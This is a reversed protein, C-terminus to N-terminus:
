QVLYKYSCMTMFADKCLQNKFRVHGQEFLYRLNSILGDNRSLLIYNIEHDQLDIAIRFPFTKDVSDSVYMIGRDSYEKISYFANQYKLTVIYRGNEPMKTIFTDCDNLYKGSAAYDKYKTNEFASMFGSQKLADAADANQGQELVYGNGRLFHTNRMLRKSIGFAVYYPNIISVPNSIMIVPVRRSQQGQGRAITTHISQFKRLENNCYHGTESQFEDFLILSVDSFLHSYKKLQDASNLTIAYGCSEIHPKEETSDPYELFLEHYIGAARRESSMSYGPFFLGGIDKFFKNAVDDLEYNFRYLCAFKEGRRLYRRVAYRNFWTTKGATRNSTCIYIEPDQKNQDKLSLLKTGDYYKPM